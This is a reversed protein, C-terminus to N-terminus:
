GSRRPRRGTVLPVGYDGQAVVAYDLAALVQSLAGNMTVLVTEYARRRREDSDLTVSAAWSVLIGDGHPGGVDVILRVGGSPLHAHHIAFGAELLAHTLEIRLAELGVEGPTREDRM